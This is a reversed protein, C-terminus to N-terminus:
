VSKQFDYIYKFLQLQVKSPINVEHDLLYLNPVKDIISSEKLMPFGHLNNSVDPM